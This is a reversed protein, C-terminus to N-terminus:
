NSYRSYKYNTVECGQDDTYRFRDICVDMFHFWNNKERGDM